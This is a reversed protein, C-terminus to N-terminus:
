SAPTTPVTIKGSIIDQKYGDLKSKIDDVQGGSTAYGVGDRKLDFVQTGTLPSNKAIGDVFEFVANDVRKLMSTMIVPKLDAAASQYQDSDVGIALHSKNKASQFVGTGSGGAAAYVVDAGADYMGNATETGAAPDNFGSCTPPNSLYKVQVKISPDVAKVGAVYGAEFKQLLPVLCGGIYGVNKTKTKLAAAAGVLFSGQEETFVLNTVNTADVVSDVIAFKVNPFEGAVKKMPDGYAFGIGIIPNYGGQALLRLRAEKDQNTENPAASLEKTELNLDKKVRELGAAAADNFSKDGRGGIDYAMGVKVTKKTSGSSSSSAGGGSSGGCATLALTAAALAAVITTVRRV